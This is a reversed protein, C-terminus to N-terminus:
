MTILKHGTGSLLIVAAKAVMVILFVQGMVLLSVTILQRVLKVSLLPIRVKLAMMIITLVVLEPILQSSTFRILM